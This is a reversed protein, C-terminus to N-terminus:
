KDAKLWNSLKRSDNIKKNRFLFGLFIVLLDKYYKKLFDVLNILFYYKFFNKKSKKGYRYNITKRNPFVKSLFLIIIEKFGKDQVLYFPYSNKTSTNGPIEYIRSLAISIIEDSISIPFINKKRKLNRNTNLILDCIAIALIINRKAKINKISKQLDMYNFDYNKDLVSYDFFTLAGLRFEPYKSLHILQTLLLDNEHPIKLKDNMFDKSKYNILISDKLPCSDSFDLPTVRHHLEISINKKSFLEPLQHSYKLCDLLSSIDYSINGKHSYGKKTLIEYFNLINKKELLIDIDLMPRLSIDDYEFLSLSAGKLFIGKINNDILLKNLNKIEESILISQIQFKTKQFKFKEVSKTEYINSLEELSLYDILNSSLKNWLIFDRFYSREKLTSKELIKLVYDKNVKRSMFTLIENMKQVDQSIYVAM